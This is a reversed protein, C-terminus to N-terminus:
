AANEMSREAATSFRARMAVAVWSTTGLPAGGMRQDRRRMRVPGFGRILNDKGSQRYATLRFHPIQRYPRGQTAAGVFLADSRPQRRAEVPGPQINPGGGIM